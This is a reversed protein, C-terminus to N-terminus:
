RLRNGCFAKMGFIATPALRTVRSLENQKTILLSGETVLLADSPIGCAVFFECHLSGNGVDPDLGNYSTLPAFREPAVFYSTEEHVERVVCQLFTEIGERHGGFLGVMGPCVIGPVDDRKHLLFRGCTDIMIACAIERHQTGNMSMGDVM